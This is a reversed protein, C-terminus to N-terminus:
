VNGAFCDNVAFVHRKTGCDPLPSRFHEIASPQFAPAVPTLLYTLSKYITQTQHSDPRM